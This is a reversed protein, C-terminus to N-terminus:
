ESFPDNCASNLLILKYQEDQTIFTFMLADRMMYTAPKPLFFEGQYQKIDM